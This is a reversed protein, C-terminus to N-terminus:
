ARRRTGASGESAQRGSESDGQLAAPRRRAQAEALLRPSPAHGLQARLASLTSSVHGQAALEALQRRLDEGGSRAPPGWMCVFMSLDLGWDPRAFM